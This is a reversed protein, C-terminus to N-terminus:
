LIKNICRALYADELYLINFPFAEKITMLHLMFIAYVNVQPFTPIRQLPWCLFVCHWGSGTETGGQSYESVHKELCSMYKLYGKGLLLM